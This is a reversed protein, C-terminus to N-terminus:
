RRPDYFKGKHGDYSFFSSLTSVTDCVVRPAVELVTRGGKGVRTDQGALM